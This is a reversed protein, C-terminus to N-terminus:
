SKNFLKWNCTPTLHHIRRMCIETEYNQRINTLVHENHAKLREISDNKQQDMLQYNLNEIEESLQDLKKNLNETLEVQKDFDYKAQKNADMAQQLNQNLDM